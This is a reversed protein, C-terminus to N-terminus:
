KYDEALVACIDKDNLLRYENGDMGKILMGAYRAFAVRDGKHPTISGEPWTEYTFALPSVDVITGTQAAAQEKERVTEPVYVGRRVEDIKDHRILIKYETPFVGVFDAPRSM